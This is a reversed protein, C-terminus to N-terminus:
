QSFAIEEYQDREQIKSEEFQRDSNETDQVISVKKIGENQNSSSV